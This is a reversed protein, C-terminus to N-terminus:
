PFPRTARSAGDAAVDGRTAAAQAPEAAGAAAGLFGFLFLPPAKMPWM